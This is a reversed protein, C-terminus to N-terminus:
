IRLQYVMGPISTRQSGVANRDRREQICASRMRSFNFYTATEMSVLAPLM